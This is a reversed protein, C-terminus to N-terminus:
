FIEVSQYIFIQADKLKVINSTIVQINKVDKKRKKLYTKHSKIGKIVKM